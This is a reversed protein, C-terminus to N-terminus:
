ALKGVTNIIAGQFHIVVKLPDGAKGVCAIAFDFTSSGGVPIFIMPAGNLGATPDQMEMCSNVGVEASLVISTLDLETEGDNNIKVTFKNAVQGVVYNTAKSSPVFSVPPTLIATIGKRLDEIEGFSATVSSLAGDTVSADSETAASDKATGGGCSALLLAFAIISPAILVFKSKKM